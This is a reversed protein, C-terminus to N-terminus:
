ESWQVKSPLMWNSHETRQGWRGTYVWIKSQDQSIKKLNIFFTNLAQDRCYTWVIIYLMRVDISRMILLSTKIDMIWIATSIGRQNMLWTSEPLAGSSKAKKSQTYHHSCGRNKYFLMFLINLTEWVTPGPPFYPTLNLPITAIPQTKKSHFIMNLTKVTMEILNSKSSKKFHWQIRPLWVPTSILSHSGPLRQDSLYFTYKEM